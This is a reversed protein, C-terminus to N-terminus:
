RLLARYGGGVMQRAQRMLRQVRLRLFDSRGRWASETIRSGFLGDAIERQSAGRAIADSVRLVAIWRRALHERPHLSRALRGLRNLAVLRRLTLIRANIDTLGYLRYRLTVPGARLSGDAVDLRIRCYGDSIVVHERGNPDVITTAMHAFRALDFADPDGTRAPVADVSLM